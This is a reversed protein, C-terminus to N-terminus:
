AKGMFGADEFKLGCELSCFCMLGHGIEQTEKARYHTLFVHGNGFVFSEGCECCHWLGNLMEAKMFDSPATSHLM